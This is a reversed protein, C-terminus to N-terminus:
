LAGIFFTPFFLYDELSCNETASVHWDRKYLSTPIQRLSVPNLNMLELDTIEKCLFLLISRGLVM